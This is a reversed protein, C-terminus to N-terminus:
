MWGFQGSSNRYDATYNENKACLFYTYGVVMNNDM